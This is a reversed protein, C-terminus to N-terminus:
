QRGELRQSARGYYGTSRIQGGTLEVEFRGGGPFEPSRFRLPQKWRHARLQARAYDQGSVAMSWAQQLQKHRELRARFTSLSTFTAAALIALLMLMWTTGILSFARRKM